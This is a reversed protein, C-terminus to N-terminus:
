QIANNAVVLAMFAVPIAVFRARWRSIVFLCAAMLALKPVPWWVGFTTMAWVVSPNAEWGGMNLVRITTFVDLIQLVAFSAILMFKTTM